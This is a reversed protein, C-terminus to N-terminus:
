AFQLAAVRVADHQERLPDGPAARQAVIREGLGLAAVRERMADAAARGAGCAPPQVLARVRGIGELDDAERAQAVEREVLVQHARAIRLRDM